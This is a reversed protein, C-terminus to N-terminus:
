VSRIFESLSTVFIQALSECRKIRNPARVFRLRLITLKRVNKQNQAGRMRLSSMM